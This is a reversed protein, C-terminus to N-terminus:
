LLGEIQRWLAVEDYITVEDTVVGEAVRWHSVALLYVDRGTPAGYLGAGSHTGALTWRVAIDTGGPCEVAGVHDVSVRADPFSALLADIWGIVEGHGFLRRDDPGQWHVAPSYAARVAAYRRHAWVCDFLWRAFTEPDAGVPPAMDPFPTAPLSRIREIEGQRWAPDVPPQAKAVARPEFGLQRVIAANDRVLWEEVIRNERCLCDAVTTFCVRKGTAAGFESAGVNTAHSTIRHSSHYGADADGAWIVAEGVLTRDPFAALTKTTGAIVTDIGVVDGAMTHVACDAGYHTAILGVDKQEWIRHTCRIIYDVIDAYDADFGRMDQRPAGQPALLEAIDRGWLPPVSL